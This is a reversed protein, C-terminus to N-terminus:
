LSHKVYLDRGTLDLFLDNLNMNKSELNLITHQYKKTYELLSSLTHQSNDTTLTYQYIKNNNIPTIKVSKVNALIELNKKDLLTHSEFHIKILLNHKDRLEQLSGETLINGKDMLYIRDCLFEAEEMYHTTLLMSINHSKLDMLFHWFEQRAKPDLGTTPEDLILLKPEHIVAVLLALRQKQGGSLNSIYTHRHSSLQFEQILKECRNLDSVSYFSAFLKLTEQLTLRDFFNTEQLSIGILQKLIQENKKWSLDCISITGNTPQQINEIIEVLTTKGAGNPGLLAIFEGTHIQIDVNNLAVLTDFKKTCNQVSLIINNKNM